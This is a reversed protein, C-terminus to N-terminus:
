RMVKDFYDADDFWEERECNRCRVLHSFGFHKLLHTSYWDHYGFFCRIRLTLDHLYWQFEHQIHLRLENM